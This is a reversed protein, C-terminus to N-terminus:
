DFLSGADSASETSPSDTSAIPAFDDQARTRSGLPDGEKVKQINRLGFSVGANGVQAYAYCSVSARAYCGAYFDAESIIDEVKQDVVGPRQMSKLNIFIGGEEMGQPYVKRGDDTETAKEDQKRFPTRLNKPWKKQDSGWKEVIAEQAAKKLVDLNTGKPFLAVVSYEEKNSLKNFKPKLVNPFSVRFVPTQINSM